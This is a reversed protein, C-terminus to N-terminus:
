QLTKTRERESSLHLFKRIKHLDLNTSASTFLQFHFALMKIMAVCYETVAFDTDLNQLKFINGFNDHLFFDKWIGIYLRSNISTLKRTALGESLM